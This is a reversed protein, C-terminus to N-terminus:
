HRNAQDQPGWSLWKQEPSFTLETLYRSVDICFSIDRLVLPLDPAYQISVDEFM